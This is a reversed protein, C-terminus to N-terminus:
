RVSFILNKVFTILWRLPSKAIGLKAALQEPTQHAAQRLDKLTALEMTRANIRQHRQKPLAAMIDDLKKVM